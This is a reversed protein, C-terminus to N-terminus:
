TSSLSYRSSQMISPSRKEGYVEIIKKIVNTTSRGDVFSILRVEGGYQEVYPTEPLTERSWDGGKVYIDPQLLKILEIPTDEDFQTVYAVCELSSLVVMRDEVPNIPRKDGKYRKVSQDSNVGVILIDGLSRAQQLYTVHGKHLIDFCGNTFVVKRMEKKAQQVIAALKDRNLILKPSQNIM